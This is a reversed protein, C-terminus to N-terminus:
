NTFKISNSILNILIQALREADTLVLKPLHKDIKMSLKISKRSAINAQIHLLKMILKRIDTPKITLDLKGAKIKNVDLVNNILHLFIESCNSIVLILEKSKKDFKDLGNAVLIEISAIMSNLPNRFEHSIAAIFM